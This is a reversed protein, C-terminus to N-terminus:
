ESVYDLTPFGDKGFKWLSYDGHAKAKKNLIDLFAQSKMEEASKATINTKTSNYYPTTEYSGIWKEASESLYYNDVITIVGKLRGLIAGGYYIKGINVCDQVVQPTRDSMNGGIIGGASWVSKSGGVVTGKNVCNAISKTINRKGKFYGILGGCGFGEAEVRAYNACNLVSCYNVVGVIGGIYQGPESGSIVCSSRCVCQNITGEDYMLGVVSGIAINAKIYTDDIVLNEITAGKAKGFLGCYDTNANIYIGSVTHGQGDYYGAFEKIPIWKELKLSDNTLEGNPMLVKSNIKVDATMKFYKGSYTEGNASEDSMKRLESADNIIYPDSKTGSGKFSTAVEGRYGSEQGNREDQNNGDDDSVRQYVTNFVILETSTLKLIESSQTNDENTMSLIKTNVDLTWTGKDDISAGGAFGYHRYTRNAKIDFMEYDNGAFTTKWTGILLSVDLTWSSSNSEGSGGQSDPEQRKLTGNEDDGCSVFGISVIAVMLITMWNLLNKKM